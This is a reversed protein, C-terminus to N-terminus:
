REMKVLWAGVKEAWRGGHERLGKGSFHVGQGNDQRLDGKLADSDPGELAVKDDWLSKQAARIQPSSTDAPTHYSVQAVFWPANWGIERRLEVIIQELHKRYQAQNLTRKPDPQNADSEGQHWLVARFGNPGLQKMRGVLMNFAAGNSAWSHDALKTVNGELTPPEPFTAGKPLWERVSTAGIGCSIIGVPVKFREAVADGFPPIFSGGGGSAGPQPDNALQWNSGTFNAVMGTKPQQQEEGYNAANSQGAIVFVEGVGVHDVQKAGIVTEGKMARLEMAYWGGAPVTLSAAFEKTGAQLATPLWNTQYATDTYTKGRTVRVEIRDCDLACKGAVNVVGQRFSQRQVVQWDLPTTLNIGSDAPAQALSVNAPLSLAGLVLGLRLFEAAHNQYKM